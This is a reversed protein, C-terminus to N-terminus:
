NAELAAIRAELAAQNTELTEIRTMAEQLAKLAKMYLVSYKVEKTITGLDEFTDPHRDINDVVLGNMGSAELEQAVVGIQNATKSSETKFSYKRVKVAKIDDWQSGADAINEKLKVDSIAGYSNNTNTINGNSAFNLVSTSSSNRWEAMNFTNSAAQTFIALTSNGTGTHTVSLAPNTAVAVDLDLQGNLDLNNAITVIGSAAISVAENGTGVYLGLTTGAGGGGTGGIRAKGSALDMFARQGGGSFNGDSGNVSLSGQGGGVTLASEAIPSSTGIGVNGSSDITLVDTTGFQRFKVVGTDFSLTTYNGGSRNYSNIRTETDGSFDPRVELGNGGNNSVALKYSPSTTGIGVNGSDTIVMRYADATEDKISFYGNSLAAVGVNIGYIRGGGANNTIRLHPQYTSGGVIDLKGTPSSTGIGVNGSSTIAVDATLSDSGSLSLYTQGTPVGIRARGTGGDFFRVQSSTTSGGKVNIIGGTNTGITADGAVDLETAPSSTGIGVNGGSTIRLHETTGELFRTFDGTKIELGTSARIGYASTFFQLENTTSMLATGDVTLGDATVTGTVDVGSATTDLKPSGNHALTISSPNAVLLDNGDADQIRTGYNSGGIILDGTGAEKIYSNLGDHYIQLDSGAGFIAKDNDGFTMDGTTVFSTGTITTGTIAAASSAGITTGDINGGNIDADSTTLKTPTLNVNVDTVTAGAGGGDFKVLVDAGNPVEFDNSANYTGQFLILSRSASLSNRIHVIKEADNPDLQVYATAGLDAGDNFEIFRNRGDSLAGNNILLTNPSGSTGAAALTVTAVGNTAQDIIDFNTNTTVGWTGSQDGTGPKEIGINVTYTSAM